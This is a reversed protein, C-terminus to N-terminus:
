LFRVSSYFQMINSEPHRFLRSTQSDRATAAYPMLSFVTQEDAWSHNDLTPGTGLRICWPFQLPGSCSFSASSIVTRMDLWSTSTVSLPLTIQLGARWFLLGLVCVFISILILMYMYLLHTHFPPLFGHNHLHLPTAHPQDHGWCCAVSSIVASLCWGPVALTFLIHLDWLSLSLSLCCTSFLTKPHLAM